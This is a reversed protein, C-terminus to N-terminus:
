LSATVVRAQSIWGYMNCADNHIQKMVILLTCFYGCKDMYYILLIAYVVYMNKKNNDINM